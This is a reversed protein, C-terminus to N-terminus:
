EVIRIRQDTLVLDDMSSPCSNHIDADGSFNVRNGVLLLCDSIADSTGTFTINGGPMYVIGNFQTGSGGALTNGLERARPDQFVLIDHWTADEDETPARLNLDAGGAINISAINNESTGTLIFTVGEGVVHAQSNIVLSGRDIIYVGPQLTVNGRIALGNCYRGPSLTVTTNPHINLSNAICNAPTTPVTLGRSALPDTQELGYTLFATSSPVNNGGMHIGGVTSLPNAELWSTGDLYIAESSGSNAAVGCGLVVNSNGMVRVGMGNNALSIVCHEDGQVTAAVSRARITPTFDIFLSSFPLRRQTNAVVEIATGSGAYAGQQPPNVIREITLTTNANSNVASTAAASYDHGQNMNLAGALAGSDVAQQLQRQWLYWQVTDVGLGAGGVLTASGAAVMLLTNGRIDNKLKSLLKKM